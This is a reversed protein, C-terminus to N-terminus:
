GHLVEIYFQSQSPDTYYKWSPHTEDFLEMRVLHYYSCVDDEDIGDEILLESDEEYFFEQAVSELLEEAQQETVATIVFHQGYGCYNASECYALYKNM